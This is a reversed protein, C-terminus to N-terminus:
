LGRYLVCWTGPVQYWTYGWVTAILGVGANWVIVMALFYFALPHGVGGHGESYRPTAVQCTIGRM